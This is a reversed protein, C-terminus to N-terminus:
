PGQRLRAASAVEHPPKHPTPPACAPCDLRPAPTLEQVHGHLFDFALLRGSAAQPPGGALAVALAAMWMGIAGAAAGMVGASACSPTLEPPPPAEFICRYCASGPVVALAQGAWRLVAGIVVAIGRALGADNVAFKLRPSDTCELLVTGPRAEGLWRHVATPELRLDQATISLTPVRARLRDRAAEAKPRGVDAQTYLVQRHLNSAEVRDHDVVTLSQAGASVLGLLAPCGLGGAGLVVFHANAIM